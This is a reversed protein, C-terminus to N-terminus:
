SYCILVGVGSDAGAESAVVGASLPPNTSDRSEYKADISFGAGSGVGSGVGSGLSVV